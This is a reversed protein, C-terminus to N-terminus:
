AGARDELLVAVDRGNAQGKTARMVQGTFFGQMKKRERDDGACLRQWETPHEAIIRDVLAALEGAAVAEFGARRAVAAPSEGSRAMEALVQKVQNSTLEGRQEMTILEALGAATLEGTGDALNQELHKLVAAPAAGADVAALALEDQGREVVLAVRAPSQGTAAALRDRRRRPLLPLDARIQEIWAGDPVLPVLDPEPFYRYDTAEEKSRLPSTRGTDENWHRTEQTVREGSSLLDIQRRAEYELARGLSRLSNVNKVECRTGFEASGLPRVSVNADVRLSGEEMKGDSAGVALLTARLETVYERAEASSRLDPHSVIELLPVGARNYDVLSWAADDIRGAGGVHTSKGTDEELHARVIGVVKGSPLELSGGVNIPQDYQSIQYNKPMDPYYYNKRAFISPRVEAGLALGVRIALEVARRNLVPLTGPLGLCVPDIQSNPDGGFANPSSSFLKTATLLEAHVELGIVMEWETGAPAGLGPSGAQWVIDAGSGPRDSM